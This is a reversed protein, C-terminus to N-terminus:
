DMDLITESEYLKYSVCEHTGKINDPYLNKCFFPYVLNVIGNNVKADYFSSSVMFNVM